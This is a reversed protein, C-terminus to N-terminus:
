MKLTVYKQQDRSKVSYFVGHKAEKVTTHLQADIQMFITLRHSLIM